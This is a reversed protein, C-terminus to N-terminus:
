VITSPFTRSALKRLTDLMRKNGRSRPPKPIPLNSNRYATKVSEWKLVLAAYAEESSACFPGSIYPDIIRASFWVRGDRVSELIEVGFGGIRKAKKM